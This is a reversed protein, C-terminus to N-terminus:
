KSSPFMYLYLFTVTIELPQTILLLYHGKSGVYDTIITGYKDKIKNLKKNEKECNKLKNNLLFQKVESCAKTKM